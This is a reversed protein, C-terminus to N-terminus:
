IMDACLGAPSGGRADAYQYFRKPIGASSVSYSPPGNPHHRRLAALFVENEVDSLLKKYTDADIDRNQKPKRM